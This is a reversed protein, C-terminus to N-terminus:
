SPEPLIPFIKAQRNKWLLLHGNIFRRQDGYYQSPVPISKSSHINFRLWARSKERLLQLRKPIPVHDGLNVDPLPLLRQGGLEVIYQLECSLM